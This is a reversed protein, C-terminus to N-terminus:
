TVCDIFRTSASQFSRSKSGSTARTSNKRSISLSMTSFCAASSPRGCCQMSGSGARLASLKKMDSRSSTISGHSLLSDRPTSTNISMTVFKYKTTYSVTVLGKVRQFSLIAYDSQPGGAAPDVFIYVDANLTPEPPDQNFMIEIDSSRFVCQLSDFAMGSLESQILDPRDEM